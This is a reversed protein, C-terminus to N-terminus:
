FHHGTGGGHGGGGGGFSHGGGGSSSPEPLRVRTVHHNTHHQDDIMLSRSSENVVNFKYTGGSLDYSLCVIVAIVAAVAAGALVSLLIEEKTLPNRYTASRVGTEDFYLSGSSVAKGLHGEITRLVAKCCEGYNGYPLYEDCLDFIDETRGSTVIRNVIGNTSLVPWRNHMDIVFLFGARDEGIGYGNSDYYRNAWEWSPRGSETNDTPMDYTTLVYADVQYTERIGDIMTQLVAEDAAGILGAEDMVHSYAAAPQAAEPVTEGSTEEDPEEQGALYDQLTGVPDNEVAQAAAAFCLM